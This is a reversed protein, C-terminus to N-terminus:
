RGPCGWRRPARRCRAPRPRSSSGRGPAPPRSAAPAPRSPPRTRAPRRGSGRPWRPACRRRSPRRRPWRTASPAGAPPAACGCRRSTPRPPRPRSSSRCRRRARSRAARPRRGPRRRSRCAPRSPGCRSGRARAPRRSRRAAGRVGARSLVAGRGDARVVPAADVDGPDEDPLLRRLDAVHPEGVERGVALREDQGPEASYGAFGDTAVRGRPPAMTTHTSSPAQGDTM